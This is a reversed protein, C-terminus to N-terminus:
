YPTSFKTITFDADGIVVTISDLAITTLDQEVKM